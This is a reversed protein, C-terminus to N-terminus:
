RRRGCLSTLATLSGGGRQIQLTGQVRGAERHATGAGAGQGPAGPYEVSQGCVPSQSSVALRWRLSQCGSGGLAAATRCGAVVQPTDRRFALPRVTVLTYLASLSSPTQQAAGTVIAAGSPHTGFWLEAYPTGDTAPVGTNAAGLAAVQVTHSTTLVRALPVHLLSRQITALHRVQCDPTRMGWDYTQVKGTIREM